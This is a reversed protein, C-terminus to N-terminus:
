SAVGFRWRPGSRPVFGGLRMQRAIVSVPCVFDHALVDTHPGIAAVAERLSARPVAIESALSDVTVGAPLENVAAWWAAIGWAVAMTLDSDNLDARVFIRWPNRQIRAPAKQSFAYDLCSPGLLRVALSGVGGRYHSTVGAREFITLAVTTAASM